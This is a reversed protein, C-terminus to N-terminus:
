MEKLFEMLTEFPILFGVSDTGRYRGTIIAALNGHEDFVPSGSSGPHIKMQVQWLVLDDVRKPATFSGPFVAKELNIPCSISYLREDIELLNRSISLPIFNVLKEDIHILSLDRRFDIKLIRGSMESGDYLIVNVKKLNRLDHATSIIRVHGNDKIIFGSAQYIEGAVRAEICVVTEIRALITNPIEQQTNSVQIEPANVYESIYNWFRDKLEPNIAGGSNKCITVRTALPSQQSLCIEWIKERSEASLRVQSLEQDVRLIEFDSDRFWKSIVDQMETIPLPYTRSFDLKDACVPVGIFSICLFLALIATHKRVIM